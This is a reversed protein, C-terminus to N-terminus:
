EHSAPNNKAAQVDLVCRRTTNQQIEAPFEILRNKSNHFGVDRLDNSRSEYVVTSLAACHGSPGSARAGFATLFHGCIHNVTPFAPREQVGFQLSVTNFDRNENGKLLNIRHNLYCRGAQKHPAWMARLLQFDIPLVDALSHLALEARSVKSKIRGVRGDNVGVDIRFARMAILFQPKGLLVNTDPNGTAEAPPLQM